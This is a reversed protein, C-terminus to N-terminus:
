TTATPDTRIWETWLVQAIALLAPGVFIGIFGFSIIGGIVGFFVLLLNM